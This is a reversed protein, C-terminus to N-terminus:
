DACPDIQRTTPLLDPTVRIVTRTLIKSEYIRSYDEHRFQHFRDFSHRNGKGTFLSLSVTPPGVSFLTVDIGLSRTVPQHAVPGFVFSRHESLTREM